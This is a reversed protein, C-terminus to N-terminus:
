RKIRAIKPMIIAQFSQSPTESSLAITNSWIVSIAWIIHRWSGGVAPRRGLNGFIGPCLLDIKAVCDVSTQFDCGVRSCLRMWKPYDSSLQCSNESELENVDMLGSPWRNSISKRRNSIEQFQSFRSEACPSFFYLPSPSPCALASSGYSFRGFNPETRLFEATMRDFHDPDHIVIRLTRPGCLRSIPSRQNSAITFGEPGSTGASPSEVKLTFSKCHFDFCIPM